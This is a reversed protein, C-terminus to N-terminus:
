LNESEFCSSYEKTRSILLTILTENMIHFGRNWTGKASLAVIRRGVHIRSKQSSWTPVRRKNERISTHRCKLLLAIYYLSVLEPGTHAYSLPTVRSKELGPLGVSLGQISDKLPLKRSSHRFRCQNRERSSARALILGPPLLIVAETRM